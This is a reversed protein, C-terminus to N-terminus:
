YSHQRGLHKLAPGLPSLQLKTEKADERPAEIISCQGRSLSTVPCGCMPLRSLSRATARQLGFAVASAARIVLTHFEQAPKSQCSLSLNRNRSLFEILNPMLAVEFPLAAELIAMRQM